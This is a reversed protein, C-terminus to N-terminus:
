SFSGFNKPFFSIEALRFSIRSRRRPAAVPYISSTQYLRFTIGQLEKGGERHGFRDDLPRGAPDGRDIDRAPERQEAHADVM